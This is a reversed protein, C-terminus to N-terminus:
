TQAYQDKTLVPIGAQRLRLEVDTTIQDCTLGAKEADALLPYVFVYVGPLGKLSNKSADGTDASCRPAITAALLLGLMAAATITLEKM